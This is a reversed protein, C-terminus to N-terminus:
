KVDINELANAARKCFDDAIAAWDTLIKSLPVIRSFEVYEVPGRKEARLKVFAESNFAATAQIHDTPKAAVSDIRLKKLAPRIRENLRNIIEIDDMIATEMGDM